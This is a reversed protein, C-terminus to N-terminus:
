FNYKFWLKCFNLWTKYEITDFDKLHLKLKKYEFYKLSLRCRHMKSSQLPYQYLIEDLKCFDEYNTITFHYQNKPKKNKINKKETYITGFNYSRNILFLPEKYISTIKLYIQNYGRSQSLRAIKGAKGPKQSTIADTKSISISITGDSDILGALYGNPIELMYPSKKMRIKLIYCVKEFQNIRAPNYLKGNLRHIINEIVLRAKVRYRFSNSGSRSKISGAKLKNKINHLVNLDVLATTLEFSIEKKKNIYFYGDGDVVGAFWEDWTINKKSYKKKNM